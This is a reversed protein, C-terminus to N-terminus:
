VGKAPAARSTVLMDYTTEAIVWGAMLVVLATPLGKIMASGAGLLAPKDFHVCMIALLAFPMLLAGWANRDRRQQLRTVALATVPVVLILLAIMNYFGIEPSGTLFLDPSINNLASVGSVAAGVFAVCIGYNLWYLTPLATSAQTGDDMLNIEDM